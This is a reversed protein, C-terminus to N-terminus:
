VQENKNQSSECNRKNIEDIVQKRKDGSAHYVRMTHLLWHLDQLTKDKLNLKNQKM